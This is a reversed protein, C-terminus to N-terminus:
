KEPQTEEATEEEPKEPVPPATPAEARVSRDSGVSRERVPEPKRRFFGLVGCVFWLGVASIVALLAALAISVDAAPLVGTILLAGLGFVLLYRLKVRLPRRMAGFGILLTIFFAGVFYQVAECITQM